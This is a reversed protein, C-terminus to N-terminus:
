IEVDAQTEQENKRERWPQRNKYSELEKKLQETISEDGLECAKKSWEVAQEFDGVEAHAAALTSLIHAAEYDTLECAGRALDLARQGNRLEDDPSTALVWAFNNLVGSDEPSTKLAAEYDAIAKKHAGVSLYADARGRIAMANGPETELVSSFIKIAERSKGTANLYIALQLKYGLNDADQELLKRLDQIAQEFKGMTASISSRLQLAAPLNPMRELVRDVDAKALANRDQIHYLRARMLFLEPDKPELEIARELDKLAKGFQEQVTWLQARLKLALVNPNKEVARNVQEMAEDIKDLKMLAEAIALRALVNDEDKQLLTKFDSIAKEVQGEKLFYLARTKWVTPSDPNMEVARDFDRLRAEQDERLQGRVLLAKAMADRDNELLEIAKKISQRAKDRDGEGIMQLQAILLHARGFNADYELIKRLDSLLPQRRKELEPNLPMLRTAQILLQVQPQVRKYLTGTLLQVAFAEDEPQLGKEIAEECLSVVKGLEELKSAQLQLEMAQDLAAQGDEGAQVPIAVLLGFMLGGLFLWSFLHQRKTM